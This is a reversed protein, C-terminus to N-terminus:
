PMLKIRYFRKSLIGGSDYVTLLGGNGSVNGGSLAYWGPSALDDCYEILYNRNLASMFSLAPSNGSISSTLSLFSTADAPDTGALYEQWDSAYDGDTNSNTPNASLWFEYLNPLGDPEEDGDPTKTLNGFYLTEWSDALWDRDTDTIPGFASFSPVAVPNLLMVRSGGETGDTYLPGTWEKTEATRRLTLDYASPFLHLTLPATGKKIGDVFVDESGHWTQVVESEMLAYATQLASNGYSQQGKGAYSWAVMWPIDPVNPDKAQALSFSDIAATYQETSFKFVGSAYNSVANASVFPVGPGRLIQLDYASIAAVMDGNAVSNIVQYFDPVANSGAGLKAYSVGRCVRAAHLNADLDLAATFNSIAQPYMGMEDYVWGLGYYLGVHNSNILLGAQLESIAEAFRKQAALSKSKNLYPSVYSTDYGKAADFDSDAGSFNGMHFRALGRNNYPMAWLSDNTMAASFSAEAGAFNNTFYAYNGAQVDLMAAAHDALLTVVSSAFLLCSVLLVRPVSSGQFQLSTRPIQHSFHKM